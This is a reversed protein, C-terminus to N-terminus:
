YKSSVVDLIERLRHSFTHAACVKEYARAAIKKRESDHTLYYETKEILDERSEYYVFDEGQTFFMTLDPQFNTLVFGGAGMIDFVRLPIGATISRLTINLNIDTCRFVYPMMDYYDIEGKTTVGEAHFSKDMTYLTVPFHAGIERLIESRETQTIKRNIFYQAYLYAASEVGDANPRVEEAKQMLAVVEPTLTQEVFNIGDIKMQARMVGELYGKAYPDLRDEMRDYFTHAETYLAGVFAIRANYKKWIEPTIERATLRAPNAALPLYHVTEIGQSAFTKYQASDFLFVDNREFILTYSFLSVHPSDYVWSVYRTHVRDKVGNVAEAILPYYNFSFVIDAQEEVIKKGLAEEFQADRRDATNQFPYRVVALREGGEDYRAMADLMDVNGFGKENEMFIIKM